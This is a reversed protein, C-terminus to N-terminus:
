VGRVNGLDLLQRVRPSFRALYRALAERLMPRANDVCRRVFTAIRPPSSVVRKGVVEFRALSGYAVGTGLLRVRRQADLCFRLRMRHVHGDWRCALDVGGECVCMKGCPRTAARRTKSTAVRKNGGVM